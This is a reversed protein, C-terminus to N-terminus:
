EAFQGPQVNQFVELSEGDTEVVINGMTIDVVQVDKMQHKVLLDRVNWGYVGPVMIVEPNVIKVVWPDICYPTIGHHAFKLVDVNEILDRHDEVVERSRVYDGTFFFSRGGYTLVLNLSDKNVRGKGKLDRPGVCTIRIDGLALEDNNQMQSYTGAALPLYESAMTETPGYVRTNEDGHAALVGNVNGVHDFHYHTIICADLTGFGAQQLYDMLAVRTHEQDYGCDIMLAIDGCTILYADACGAYIQHVRLVHDEEASAGSLLLSFVAVLALVARKMKQM